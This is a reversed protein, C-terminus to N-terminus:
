AELRRALLRALKAVEVRDGDGDACYPLTVVPVHGHLERRLRGLQSRQARARHHARLAAWIPAGGDAAELAAVEAGTFRDPRLGNVIALALDYGVAERTADRLALTETVPLEEATAVALVATARPDVLMERITRSQRAIPGVRAAQAFTRPAALLAVGHGTAPADLVVLDYARGGPTRRTPQALEWVKGITLLESLGPTAATLYAFARSSTLVDAMARMPLQDRLYEHLAHEPDVTVHALGDVLVRESFPDAGGAGLMRSIDDRAAVEVVVTRLGRRAGLLGLAAAITSKGVGGKGTVVVLRHDLLGALDTM